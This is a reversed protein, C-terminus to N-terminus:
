LQIPNEMVRGTIGFEEYEAILHPWPLSKYEVFQFSTKQYNTSFNKFVAVHNLAALTNMLLTEISNLIQVKLKKVYNQM